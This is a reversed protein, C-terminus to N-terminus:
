SPPVPGQKPPEKSSRLACCMELGASCCQDGCGMCALGRDSARVHVQVERFGFAWWFSLVRCSDVLGSILALVKNFGEYAVM